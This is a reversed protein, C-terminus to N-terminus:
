STSTDQRQVIAVGHRCFAVISHMRLQMANCHQTIATNHERMMAWDSGLGYMFFFRSELSNAARIAAAALCGAPVLEAGEGTDTDEVVAASPDTASDAGVREVGAFCVRAKLLAGHKRLRM